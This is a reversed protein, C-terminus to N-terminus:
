RVDLFNLGLVETFDLPFKRKIIEIDELTVKPTNSFDFVLRIYNGGELVGQNLLEIEEYIPKPSIINKNLIKSFYGSYFSYGKDDYKSFTQIHQVIMDNSIKSRPLGFKETIEDLKVLFNGSTIRGFLFNVKM